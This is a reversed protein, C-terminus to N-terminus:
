SDQCREQGTKLLSLVDSFRSSLNVALFLSLFTVRLYYFIDLNLRIYKYSNQFYCVGLSFSFFSASDCM